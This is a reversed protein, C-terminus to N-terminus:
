QKKQSLLSLAIIGSIFFVVVDVGVWVKGNRLVFGVVILLPITLLLLGLVKEKKV